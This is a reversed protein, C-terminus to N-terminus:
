FRNWSRGSPHPGAGHGLLSDPIKPMPPIAQENGRQGRGDYMIDAAVRRLFRERTEESKDPDLLSVRSYVSNREGGEEEMSHKEDSIAYGIEEEEEEGDEDYLASSVGGPLRTRIAEFSRSRGLSRRIQEAELTDKFRELVERIDQEEEEDDDWRSDLPQVVPSESEHEYEDLQKAYVPPPPPQTALAHLIKYKSTEETESTVATPVQSTPVSPPVPRVPFPSHRGRQIALPSQSPLGTWNARPLERDHHPQGRLSSSPLVAPVSPLPGTPPPSPPPIDYHALVNPSPLPTM